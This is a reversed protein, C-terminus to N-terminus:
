SQDGKYHQELEGYNIEGMATSLLDFMLGNDCDIESWLDDVLAEIYDATLPEGEDAHARLDDGLWVTVLWTEKNEWGEYSM